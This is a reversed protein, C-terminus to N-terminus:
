NPNLTLCGYQVPELTFLHMEIPNLFFSIKRATTVTECQFKISIENQTEIEICGYQPITSEFAQSNVLEYVNDM